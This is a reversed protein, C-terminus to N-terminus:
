MEMCDDPLTNARRALADNVSDKCYKLAENFSPGIQSEWFLGCGYGTENEIKWEARIKGESTEPDNVLAREIKFGRHSFTNTVNRM